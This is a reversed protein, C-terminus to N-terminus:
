TRRVSTPTPGTPARRCALGASLGAGGVLGADVRREAIQLRLRAPRPPARVPDHGQAAAPEDGGPEPVARAPGTVRVEVGVDQDGVRGAAGIAPPTREVGPVEVELGLGGSVEVFGVEAGLEGGPEADGPARDDVPEGVDVPDRSRHETTRSGVARSRPRSPREHRWSPVRRATRPARWGGPWPSRRRAAASACGISRVLRRAGSPVVSLEALHQSLGTGDIQGGLPDVLDAVSQEAGFPEGPLRARKSRRSTRCAHQSWNGSPASMAVTSSSASWVRASGSTTGRADSSVVSGDARHTPLRCAPRDVRGRGAGAERGVGQERELGSEDVAGDGVGAVIHSDCALVAHEGREAARGLRASSCISITTASVVEPRGSSTTMAAAPGSLREAEVGGAVGPLAGPMMHDAGRERSTGRGLEFGRRCGLDCSRRTQEDVEVIGFM